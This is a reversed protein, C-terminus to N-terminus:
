LCKRRVNTLYYRMNERYDLLLDRQFLMSTPGEQVGPTLHIRLFMPVYVPVIYAVIRLLNTKQVETMDNGLLLLRIYENATTLPTNLPPPCHAMAGGGKHRWSRMIAYFLLGICFQPMGGGGRQLNPMLNSCVLLM